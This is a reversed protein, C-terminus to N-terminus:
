EDGTEEERLGTAKIAGLVDSDSVSGRNGTSPDYYTYVGDSYSEFIVAHSTSEDVKYAGMVVGSGTKKDDFLSSIDSSGTTWGGSGSTNDVTNFYNSMYNSIDENLNGNDDFMQPGYLGDGPVKTVEWNDNLNGAGNVYDNMFYSPSTNDGGLKKTIYAMCDFFCDNTGGYGGVTERMENESLEPNMCEDFISLKSLKKM